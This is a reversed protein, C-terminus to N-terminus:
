PADAMAAVDASDADTREAMRPAADAIAVAPMTARAADRNTADATRRAVDLPAPM